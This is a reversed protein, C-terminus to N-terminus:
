SRPKGAAARAAVPPHLTHTAQVSGGVLKVTLKPEATTGAPTWGIAARGSSDSRVRNAALRGSSATIALAVGPVPNGYADAVTAQLRQEATAAKGPLEKLTIKAAAAPGATARVKLGSDVDAVRVLLSQEGTATGLTWRLSARGRPDTVASDATGSGKGPRPVVTIGPVPNGHVDRVSVVIARGLVKGSTGRQAQGAELTIAAPIDPRTQGVITLPPIARPNGVQALLRQRGARPGFTWNASAIGLSDTRGGGSVSGGDLASWRVPVGTLALGSSDAVRVRIPSATARGAVGTTDGAAFEMRTDGPVPDADAAVRLASDLQAVRAVLQQLGARPGLSWHVAVRGERDTVASDPEVRGEGESLIFRVVIGAVPQGEAALARLVVPEPLRHGALARQDAGAVLVLATPSLEVRVTVEAQAEGAAARLRTFGADVGIATGFSDVKVVGSDVSQWRPQVAAIRHGRADLAVAALQLTDSQRIRLASDGPVIVRVARPIVWVMASASRDRVWATVETRGPGRAVVTGASDVSVVSSDRSEWRLRAGALVAGLRDTVTAALLATDGVAFLSDTRPAVVVRQAAHDAFSLGTGGLWDTIGLNRANLLLTLLGAATTLMWTLGKGAGTLVGPSSATRKM